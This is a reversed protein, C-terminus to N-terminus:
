GYFCCFIRDLRISLTVIENFVRMVFSVILWGKVKAFIAAVSEKINDVTTQFLIKMAEASLRLMGQSSWRLEPEGFDSIAKEM